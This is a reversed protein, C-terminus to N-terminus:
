IARDRVRRRAPEEATETAERERPRVVSSSACIRPCSARERKGRAPRLRRRLSSITISFRRFLFARMYRMRMSVIPFRASPARGIFCATNLRQRGSASTWHHLSHLLPPPLPFPHSRRPWETPPSDVPRDVPDGEM